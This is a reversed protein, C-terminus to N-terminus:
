RVVMMKGVAADKDTKVQYYYTGAAPLLSSEVEFAHAGKPLDSTRTYLTRGMEDFVTLTATAAEPLYFGISTGQTFPNPQNQYLQFGATTTPEGNFRLEVDLREKALNYAEARTIASSVRILDHLAGGTKARFTLDFGGTQEGDFSTTLTNRFVGFNDLSMAPGPQVNLVELEPFQLSFQYGLVRETAQFHVTFIEGAQVMRDALEFTLSGTSRDEPLGLVNANASGNVDGIKIAVFDEQLHDTLINTVSRTEVLPMSFPNLPDPFVYSADIFRWSTNSPLKQYIGLILKRLEVIDFTTVSGSNNADAAILKYLSTITELGLIHRSILVLDYTSVGNLHNDNKGPTILINSTPPVSKLFSFTGTTLNNLSFAPIGPGSGTIVVGVDELNAGTETATKGAVSLFCDASQANITFTTSLNTMTTCGYVTVATMAITNTGAPYVAAPFTITGSGDTTATLSSPQGNILYAFTTLANPLLGDAYFSVPAGACVATTPPLVQAIVPYPHVVVTASAISSLSCGAADTVQLLQFTTTGTPTVPILQNNAYNPLTTNGGGDNYLVTYPGTGGSITFFLATTAGACLQTEDLHVSAAILSSQVTVTQTATATLGAADTVTWTVTTAGTPFTTPANNTVTAVACNDSTLPTGLSIATASCNPANAFVTVPPPATIKPNQADTITVTFSCTATLGGNDTIKATVTTLGKAFVAGALTTLTGSSAGTLTYSISSGPCSASGTANWDTGLHTHACTNPDTTAGQDVTCSINPPGSSLPATATPQYIINQASLGGLEQYYDGNNMATWANNIIEFTAVGSCSSNFQLIAIPYETGASWNVTKINVVGFIFYNYTGDNGQGLLTYSYLPINLAAPASLTVGTSALVRVTFIGASYAGNSVTQTPRIRVELKNSNVPVNFIGIDLLPQSFGKPTSGLLLFLAYLYAITKM